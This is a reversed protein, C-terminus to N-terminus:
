QPKWPCWTNEQLNLVTPLLHTQASDMKASCHDAVRKARSCIAGIPSPWLPLLDAKSSLLLAGPGTGAQLDVAGECLAKTSFKLDWLTGSLLQNKLTNVPLTESYFERLPEPFSEANNFLAM